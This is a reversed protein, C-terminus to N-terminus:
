ASPTTPPTNQAPTVKASASKVPTAKVPTAKVPTTKAPKPAPATPMTPISDPDRKSSPGEDKAVGLVNGVLESGKAVQDSFKSGTSKNVVQEVKDLGTRVKDSNDSIVKQAKDVLGSLDPMNVM